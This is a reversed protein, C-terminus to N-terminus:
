PTELAAIREAIKKQEERLRDIDERLNVVQSPVRMGERIASAAEAADRRARGDHASRALRDLAPLARADALGELTSIAALQVLFAEDDLLAVLADIAAARRSEVLEAVRGLAAVAARRLGEDKGNRSGELIAPFAREDALEALGRVAGGEITGNWSHTLSLASLRELCREDRTKGLASAAAACVLYSADGEALAILAEAVQADRWNGLAEAVARRVKPHAHSRAELLMTRAWPARTAGVYRATEALVGWFAEEAFATALAASAQASGDAALEEAARIRAIPDPDHHLIEAAYRAGVAFRLRGLVFAGSDIRILASERECPIVFRENQREVRLHLVREGEISSTECLGVRLDFAFAPHEVDVSQVQDVAVTLAARKADWTATVKVDPHGAGFVWTDFFGRLNRGTTEEIARIFDITEVNRQAHQAVYHAISRWFRSEGLEGRLVHLVAAGKEYLHRDFLEIPDRFRNCVIPRRYRTADEDMYRTLSGFHHYLYEEYGLDREFWVGEFFTAFGENLWAHAWDRCTLLDGFWQHALEHAALFDASYDLAAREDHLVRETQTTASTNEMGGFIFDGVAIQSYRAFPYAAGTREEFLEIMQPTKGFARRVEDGRGPLAYLLVPVHNRGATGLDIEEFPGVVMTVLYTSHPIEQRYRYITKAGSDRRELLVGNSLAFLGADVVVTAETPQKAHPYDLCPFWYRANEDQSQTWCHAVKNPYAANPEIFFLGARPRVTRYAVEISAREDAQLPPEFSIELRADRHVFTQPRGERLVSEIQMDVADFVLREVAEDLARVRTTCRGALTATALNPELHLAIEEVDVIKDPGYQNRAGPLAFGRHADDLRSTRNM